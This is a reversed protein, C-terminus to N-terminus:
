VVSKRDTYATNTGNGFNGNSNDGSVWLTNDSRLAIVNFATYNTFFVHFDVVQDIPEGDQQRIPMFKHTNDRVYLNQSETLAAYHKLNDYGIRSYFSVVKEGLPELDTSASITDSLYGVMPLSLGFTLIACLCLIWKKRM